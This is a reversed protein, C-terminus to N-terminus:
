AEPKLTFGNLEMINAKLAHSKALKM